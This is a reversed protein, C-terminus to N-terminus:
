SGEREGRGGRYGRSWLAILRKGCLARSVALLPFAVMGGWSLCFPERGRIGVRLAAAFIALPVEKVGRTAPETGAPPEVGDARRVVRVSCSACAPDDLSSREVGTEAKRHLLMVGLDPDRFIRTSLAFEVGDPVGVPVEAVTALSSNRTVWSGEACPGPSPLPPFSLSM